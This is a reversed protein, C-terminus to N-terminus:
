RNKVDSPRVHASAEKIVTDVILTRFAGYRVGEFRSYHQWNFQYLGKLVISKERNKKTGDSAGAKWNLIGHVRRGEHIRFDADVTEAKRPPNWYASDNTLFIAYATFPQEVTSTIQELRQIDKLFDYRGVDQASQNKLHFLENHASISLGRTKYKLEIATIAGGLVVWMDIYIGKDDQAVPFELRINARPFQTHIEWALAHQFDAESHFIPRQDSLSSLLRKIDLM